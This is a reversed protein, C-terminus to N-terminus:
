PKYAISKKLIKVATLFDVGHFKMIFTYIDGNEGCGFCHFFQGSTNVSFSPTKEKHFPCLGRYNCGVKKLTICNNIYTVIDSDEKIKSINM